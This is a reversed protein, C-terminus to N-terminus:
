FRICKTRGRFFDIKTTITLGFFQYLDKKEPNGRMSGAENYLGPFIENTRDSCNARLESGGLILEERGIYDGSVDDLYDTFTYRLGWDLGMCIYSNLSFKIGLGFPISVQTLSYKKGYGEMGQGETGLPQLEVIERRGTQPNFIETKPNMFFVAVGGYLYPTVRHKRSGTKYNFFNFETIAAIENIKSEFSLNRINDPFDADSAGVKGFSASARIVWRANFNYRYIAGLMPKTNYFNYGPNIDGIYNGGGLIVGIEARERQQSFGSIGVM